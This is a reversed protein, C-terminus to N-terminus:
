DQVALPNMLGNLADELAYHANLRNLILLSLSYRTFSYHEHQPISQPLMSRAKVPAALSVQLM